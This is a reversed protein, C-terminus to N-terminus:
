RQFVLGILYGIIAASMGIIAIELGSRIPKGTTKHAKYVGVALLTIASITLSALVGASLPLFFFPVLPILSGILASFGVILAGNIVDATKIPAIGVSERMITQLLINEHSVIHDTIETLLRGSFGKGLYIAKIKDKQELLNEQIKKREKTLVALYHDREAMRSTYAVAGMSISEAFTAAFGGALIIRIEGSAVAVGLIVGLVNVLGDQGGLIIQSLSTNKAHLEDTFIESM